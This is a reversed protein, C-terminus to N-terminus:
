EWGDDEDLSPSAAAAGGRVEADSYVRSSGCALRRAAEADLLQEELVEIRRNLREFQAQTMMVGSVSGRNFVYVANQSSEAIGFVAGPSRKVDTISATPVDLTKMANM